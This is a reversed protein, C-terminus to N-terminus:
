SCNVVFTKQYFSIVRAFDGLLMEETYLQPSLKLLAPMYRNKYIEPYRSCLITRKETLPVKPDDLKEFLERIENDSNELQEIYPSNVEPEDAQKACSIFIPTSFTFVGLYILKKLMEIAM